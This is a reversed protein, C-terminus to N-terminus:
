SAARAAGGKSVHDLSAVLKTSLLLPVVSLKTNAVDIRPGVMPLEIETTLAQTEHSLPAVDDLITVKTRQGLLV